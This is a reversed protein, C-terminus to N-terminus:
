DQLVLEGRKIDLLHCSATAVAVSREVEIGGLTVGLDLLGHGGGALHERQHPVPQRAGGEVPQQLAVQLLVGEAAQHASAMPGEPGREGVAVAWRLASKRAFTKRSM